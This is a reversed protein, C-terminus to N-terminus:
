PTSRRPSTASAPSASRTRTSGAPRRPERDEQRCGAGGHHRQEHRREDHQEIRPVEARAPEGRDRHHRRDDREDDDVEHALLLEVADRGRARLHRAAREVLARRLPRDAEAREAVMRDEPDSGPRETVHRQPRGADVTRGVADEEAHEGVGARDTEEQEDDHQQRHNPSDALEGPLVRARHIAIPSIQSM